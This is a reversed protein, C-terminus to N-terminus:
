NLKSQFHQIVSKKNRLRDAEKAQKGNLWRPQDAIMMILTQYNIKWMVYKVSWGTAAVVQWLVGFPSHSSEM